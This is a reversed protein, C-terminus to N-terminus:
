YNKLLESTDYDIYFVKNFCELRNMGSLIIEVATNSKVTPYDNYLELTRQLQINYQIIKRVTNHDIYVNQGYYEVKNDYPKLLTLLKDHYIKYPMGDIVANNWRYILEIDLDKIDKLYCHILDMYTQKDARILKLADSSLVNYIYLIGERNDFTKLTYLVIDKNGFKLILEIKQISEVVLLQYSDSIPVENKCTCNCKCKKCKM